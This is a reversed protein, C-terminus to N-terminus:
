RSNHRHIGKQFGFSYLFLPFFFISAVNNRKATLRTIEAAKRNIDIAMFYSSPLLGALFTSICGSGPGIECVIAPKKQQIFKLDKELADLFLFTDEAPEYIHQFDESSLHDLLPTAVM